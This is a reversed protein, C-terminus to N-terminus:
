IDEESLEDHHQQIYEAEMGMLYRHYDILRPIMMDAHKKEKKNRDKRPYRPGTLMDMLFLFDSLLFLIENRVNGNTHLANQQIYRLIDDYMDVLVSERLKWSLSIRILRATNYQEYASLSSDSVKAHLMLFLARADDPVIPCDQSSTCKKEKYFTKLKQTFLVKSLHTHGILEQLQLDLFHYM